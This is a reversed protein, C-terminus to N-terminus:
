RPEVDILLSAVDNAPVSDPLGDLAAHDVRAEVLYDTDACDITVQFYVTLKKGPELELPLKKGSKPDLSVAAPTCGAGTPTVDLRVLDGLVDLDSIPEPHNGLNQIKVRVNAQKGEGAPVRVSKPAKLTSIALDNVQAFLCAGARINEAGDASVQGTSALVGGQTPTALFDIEAEAGPALAGLACSLVPAAFSCSGQSPTSSDFAFGPGLTVSAVVDNAAVSGANRLSLTGPAATGVVAPGPTALSALLAPEVAPTGGFVAVFGDTGTGYEPQFASGVIPLDKGGASGVLHSRLAGGLAVGNGADDNSGGFFSSYVLRTGAPGLESLFADAGGEKETQFADSTVPFDKDRTYGAIHAHGRADVAVARAADSDAEGLYTGYLLACGDASLKAAFADTSTCNDKRGCEVDFADATVPLNRSLTEGVVYVNEYADLAVGSAVDYAIPNGAKGGLFSSWVLRAGDASLRSVFADLEGAYKPQFAGESTPFKKSGTGGVVVASGDAGLAVGNAFDYGKGGLFTAWLLTGGGPALRAVFADRPGLRSTQLAGPSVPFNKSDSYGAVSANGAADVAVANAFDDEKGGLYTSYVLGAGDPTLRAVFADFDEDREPQFAGLTVPFDKSWAGGVVFVDGGPGLAVGEGADVDDGGLYTAWVLSTGGPALKMVFADGRNFDGNGGAYAPQLVDQTTPFDKSESAGAVVVFGDADVAVARASDFRNGGAYSSLELVPDIVLEAEPDHAGVAFGLTSGRQVFRSEVSRRAGATEQYAVPRRLVLQRTGAHLVLDGDPELTRLDAGDIALQFASLEAGPAAIVDFELRGDRGYVALDLGPYLGACAIRGHRPLNRRWREPNRGILYHVRGPQPDSPVPRANPRSGAFRIRLPTEGAAWAVEIGACGLEIRADAQKTVFRDPEPAPEFALPLSLPFASLTRLWRKMHDTWGIPL